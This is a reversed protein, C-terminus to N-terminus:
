SSTTLESCLKEAALEAQHICHPIGVGHSWNGTVAIGPLRAIEKEIREVKELHGVHYQPMSKPYRHVVSVRPAAQVQLTEKLLARVSSELVANEKGVADPALAGGIFARLLVTGSPARHAFKQSSFTCGVVGGAKGAPVVFGFGGFPVPLDQKNFALTVTAASECVIGELERAAEPAASKLLAAAAHAPLAVCLVDAPFIDGQKSRVTWGQGAREIGAVPTNTKLDVELMRRALVEVLRIMGFRPTLFMSYRPGSAKEAGAAGAKVGGKRLARLVSGHEKEMGHFQPLAAKISLKELDAAYIGGIMPQAIRQLAEPGLRRRVFSAVSEDGASSRRPIFREFAMRLKGPLSLIRCEMLAKLGAPATLYFGEPMPELQGKWAIFSRRSGESTPILEDGMGIRRCLEKAWPKEALFADPGGEILFDGRRETEILGGLRPSAELVTIKLNIAKERSLELLRHAAALGSIGGGIVVAKKQSSSGQRDWPRPRM